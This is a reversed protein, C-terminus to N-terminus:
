QSKKLPTEEKGIAGGQRSRQVNWILSYYLVFPFFPCCFIWYGSDKAWELSPAETGAAAAKGAAYQALWFAVCFLCGVAQLAVIIGYHMGPAPEIWASWGM